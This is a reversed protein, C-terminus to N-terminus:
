KVDKTDLQTKDKAFGLVLLELGTEGASEFAHVEGALVPVGDSDRIPASEAGIKVTGTGAIVYYFEDVGAHVHRGISSGPPIMVHDLYAWRSSFLSPGMVRRYQVTGAGGNMSAAPRLLSRQLRFAIFAPKPDLTVGTRDDGLDFTATPDRPGSLAPAGVQVNVNMWELPSGSPNYLAHSHGVRSPVGAPGAIASTRGDVTFEAEGDFALFMEESTNHVHHGISSRPMLRGRHIFNVDTLVGRPLLTQYLLEGAGAHTAKSTRYRAPETHLIRTELPEKTCLSVVLILGAALNMM